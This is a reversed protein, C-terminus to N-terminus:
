LCPIDVPENGIVTQGKDIEEAAFLGYGSVASIGVRLAQPLSGSTRTLECGNGTETGACQQLKGLGRETDRRNHCSVM